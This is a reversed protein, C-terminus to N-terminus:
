PWVVSVVKKLEDIRLASLNDPNFSMSRDGSTNM